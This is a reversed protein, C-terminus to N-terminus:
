LAHLKRESEIVNMNARGLWPWSLIVNWTRRTCNARGLRTLICSGSLRVVMIVLYIHLPHLSEEVKLRLAIYSCVTWVKSHLVNYRARLSAWDRGQVRKQGPVFTDTRICSILPSTVTSPGPLYHRSPVARLRCCLKGTTWSSESESISDIIPFEPTKYM